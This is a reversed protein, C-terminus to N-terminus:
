FQSEGGAVRGIKAGATRYEHIGTYPFCLFVANRDGVNGGSKGVGDDFVCQVLNDTEAISGFQTFFDYHLAASKIIVGNEARQFFKKAACDDARVHCSEHASVSNSEDCPVAARGAM